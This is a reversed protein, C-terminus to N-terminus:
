LTHELLLKADSAGLPLLVALLAGAFGVLLLLLGRRRERELLWWACALLPAIATQKSMVALGALAGGLLAGWGTPRWMVCAVAWLGLAVALMDSRAVTSWLIFTHSPTFFLLAGVLAPLNGAGLARCLVFIGGAALLTAALTALRAMTMVGEDSLGLLAGLGGTLYWDLPPYITAIYPPHSYDFYPSLGQRVRLAGFLWTGEAYNLEGTAGAMHVAHYVLLVSYLGLAMLLAILLPRVWTQPPSLNAAM